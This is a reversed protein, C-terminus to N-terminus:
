VPIVRAASVNVITTQHSFIALVECGEAPAIAVIRGCADQFVNAAVGRRSLPRPPDAAKVPLTMVSFPVILREGAENFVARLAPPEFNLVAVPISRNDM